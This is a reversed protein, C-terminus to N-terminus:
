VPFGGGGAGQWFAGGAYRYVDGPGNFGSSKIIKLSANEWPIYVSGEIGCGTGTPGFQTSIKGDHDDTSFALSPGGIWAMVAGIVATRLWNRM